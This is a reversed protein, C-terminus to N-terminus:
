LHMHQFVLLAWLQFLFLHIFYIELSYRSLILIPLCLWRQVHFERLHYNEMILFIVPPMISIAILTAQRDFLGFQVSQWFFDLGLTYIMYHSALPWKKAMMQASIAFMLGFLGYELRPYIFFNLVSAAIFLTIFFKQNPINPLLYRLIGYTFIFNLLINFVLRDYYLTSSISLIVGYLCLLLNNHLKGHYGMLFFFLPAAARGLIRFWLIDPYYFQGIHDVIMLIIALLKILDHSNVHKGYRYLRNLQPM